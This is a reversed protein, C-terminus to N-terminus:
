IIPGLAYPIVGYAACKQKFVDMQEKTSNLPLHFDKVSMYKVGAIKYMKLTSDIDFKRFTYAAIGIKVKGSGHEKVTQSVARTGWFFVSILIFFLHKKM